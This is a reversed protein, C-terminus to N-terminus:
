LTAQSLVAPMPKFQCGEVFVEFFDPTTELELHEIGTVMREVAARRARSLLVERAGQVAANGVKSIREGPVPALFGIEIANEVDVYNAFGGALFLHDVAEPDIGLHRLVIFQGCFNAAKAQALNSADERTFRIGREPVISLEYAKDAFVGKPTMRDHRRLEALLDILGSGCIGQPEMGGITSYHFAGDVFQVSEIAGDYGPMGYEILGGEFAPGAPCSAAVM